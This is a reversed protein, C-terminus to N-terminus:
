SGSVIVALFVLNDEGDNEVAHAHGSTTTMIFGPKVRIPLDDDLVTGTGSEFAFIETEGEHTHKGISCGPALTIRSFLRVNAPSEPLLHDLTVKGNGGRMNERSESRIDQQTYVM